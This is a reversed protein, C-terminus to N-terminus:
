RIAQDSQLVPPAAPAAPRTPAVTPAPPPLNCNKEAAVRRLVKEEDIAREYDMRYSMTGILAGGGGESARAM